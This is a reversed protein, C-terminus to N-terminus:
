SINEYAYRLAKVLNYIGWSWSVYSKMKMDGWLVSKHMFIKQILSSYTFFITDSQPVTIVQVHLEPLTMGWGSSLNPAWGGIDTKSKQDMHSSAFVLLEDKHVSSSNMFVSMAEHGVEVYYPGLEVETGYFESYIVARLM